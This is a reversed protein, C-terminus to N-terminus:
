VLVLRREREFSNTEQSERVSFRWLVVLSSLSDLVAALQLGISIKKRKLTLNAQITCIEWKSLGVKIYVVGKSYIM